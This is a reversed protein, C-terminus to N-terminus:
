ARAKNKIRKHLEEGFILIFSIVAIVAVVIAILDLTIFTLAASEGSQINIGSTTGFYEASGQVYGLPVDSLALMGSNGLYRVIRTGNEFTVNISANVPLGFVSSASIIV